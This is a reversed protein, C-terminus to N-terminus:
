EKRKMKLAIAELDKANLFITPRAPPIEDVDVNVTINGVIEPNLGFYECFAEGFESGIAVVITM